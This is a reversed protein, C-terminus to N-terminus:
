RDDDDDGDPIVVDVAKGAVGVAAGATGIAVDAALATAGVVLCGQLLPALLCVLVLGRVARM